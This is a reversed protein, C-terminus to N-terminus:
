GLVKAGITAGPVGRQRTNLYSLQEIKDVAPLTMEYGHKRDETYVQVGGTGPFIDVVRGDDLHVTHMQIDSPEVELTAAGRKAQVLISAADMNLFLVEGEPNERKFHSMQFEGADGIWAFKWPVSPREKYFLATNGM